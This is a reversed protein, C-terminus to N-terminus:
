EVRIGAEEIAAMVAATLAQRRAVLAEVLSRHRWHLWGATVVERVKDWTEGWRLATYALGPAALLLLIGWIFGFLIGYIIAEILWALAVLISGIILKGTGAVEDEPGVLRPTLPGALRYPIYSLFVGAAALPLSLFLLLLWSIVRGRHIPALELRWPNNIGLINLLRAYRRAQQAIAKLRTPDTQSLRQYAALLTAVRDHQQALTLTEGEPATWAAIYPLGTLLEANEAQLVVEELCTEIQDTLARVAQRQDTTYLTSFETLGFSPGIIVLASTRFRTKNQYWLGVPVIQLGLNWGTEAEAGAAIRAAGTRLPLLTTRSHTTGEPFLALLKGQQLLVRCRAFTAENQEAMGSQAGGEPKEDRSRYVPLAEFAQMLWRGVLNGWFSSKALFSVPRGLSLILLMPDLLGNPHNLVFLIPGAEPLNQRGKVEIHPYFLHMLSLIVFRIFRNFM